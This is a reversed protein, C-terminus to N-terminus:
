DQTLTKRIYNIWGTKDYVIESKIYTWSPSNTRCIRTKWFNSMECHMFAPTSYLAHFHIQKLTPCEEFQIEVLKIDPYTRRLAAEIRRLIDHQKDHSYSSYKKKNMLVYPDPNVTVAMYINDNKTIRGFDIKTVNPTVNDNCEPVPTRNFLPGHLKKFISNDM